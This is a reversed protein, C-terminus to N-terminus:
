DSFYELADAVPYFSGMVIVRDKATAKQMVAECAQIVDKHAFLKDGSVQESVAKSMLQADLGRSVDLGATFWGDVQPQLIEVVEDVAKDALMAIVVYTLGEVPNDQLTEVLARAAQPNHAVDLMVDPSSHVQQYRGTISVKKLGQIIASENVAISKKICFLAMIAAAANQMQVFGKLAPFPLHDFRIEAATLRWGEVLGQYLYDKGAAYLQVNKDVAIQKISDPMSLSGYVAPKNNRFIGAKERGISEIDDGLWDMHDLGISTIVSVDPDIVNVADLRGGLGVELIVADLKAQAFIVLAALTGFEFYTLPLDGRVQDIREFAECLDADEVSNSNISIRENYKLLHPSTYCGVQYGAAQLMSQLFASTSGKGNTGALTIVPCNFQSSLGLQHLVKEVRDLGLDIEKPNLSEQWTLWQELTQFKM